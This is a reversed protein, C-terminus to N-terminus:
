VANRNSFKGSDKVLIVSHKTVLSQIEQKFIFICFVWTPLIIPRKWYQKSFLIALRQKSPYNM